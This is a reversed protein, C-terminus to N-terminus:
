KQDKALTLSRSGQLEIEVISSHEYGYMRATYVLRGIEDVLVPRPYSDETVVIFGQEDLRRMKWVVAGDGKRSIILDGKSRTISIQGGDIIDQKGWSGIWDDPIEDAWRRSLAKTARINKKRRLAAQHNAWSRTGRVVVETTAPKLITEAKLTRTTEIGDRYTVLWEIKKEGPVGRKKTKSYNDYKSRDSRTETHFPIPQSTSEIATTVAPSNPESSSAGTCGSSALAALLLLFPLVRRLRWDLSLSTSPGSHGRVIAAANLMMQLHLKPRTISGRM